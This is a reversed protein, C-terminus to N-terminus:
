VDEEKNDILIEYERVKEDKSAINEIKTKTKPWLCGKIIEDTKSIHEKLQDRILSPTVALSIGSPWVGLKGEEIPTSSVMGVIMGEKASFVPGGSFGGAVSTGLALRPTREGEPLPLELGGSIVTKLVYPRLVLGQLLSGMPFGIIGVDSGWSWQDYPHLELPPVDIGIMRYVCVDHNKNHSCMLSETDVEQWHYSDENPLAIRLKDDKLGKDTLKKESLGRIRDITEAIHWSTAFFEARQLSFGTGVISPYGDVRTGAAIAIVSRSVYDAMDEFNPPDERMIFM